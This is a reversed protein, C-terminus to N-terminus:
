SLFQAIRVMALTDHGCYRLLQGCLEAKRGTATTPATAEIYAAQAAGGERIGELRAYDLEPAITPLLAKISWSGKMAPHYYAAKAIPHLDVLRASVADLAGALDPCLDALTALCQREFRTYMFVPGSSGIAELLALAIARAPLTDGLELFEAHELRGPAREVHLSWQFPIQQYPRTGAWRPVAYHITEFDLYYRPWPQAALTARATPSLEPRGTRAARWARLADEGRVLEPPLERVDRFGRAVMEDLRRGVNPLTNLPYDTQPWCYGVFPCLHPRACRSGVPVAPEDAQVIDQAAALWGPVQARQAAIGATLDTERLLGQYDGGGAYVFASNVHALVITEPPAASREVVWAQIACDAAHQEKVETAAKVEVLARRRRDLVDARVLLGDREFTAEFLPGAAPAALLMATSRLAEGMGREASVHIGTGAPDYIRHAVAGVAHGTEFAAQTADDVIALEPRHKELWLRKPCQLYSLLRTKSLRAPRRLPAAGPPARPEEPRERFLDLQDNTESM